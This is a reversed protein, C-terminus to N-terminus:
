TTAGTVFYAKVIVGIANPRSSNKGEARLVRLTDVSMLVIKTTEVRTTANVTGYKPLLSTNQGM